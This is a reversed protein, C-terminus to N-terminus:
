DERPPPRRIYSFNDNSVGVMHHNSIEALEFGSDIPKRTTKITPKIYHSGISDPSYPFDENNTFFENSGNKRKIPSGIANKARYFEKALYESNLSSYSDGSSRYIDCEASSESGNSNGFNERKPSRTYTQPLRPLMEALETLNTGDRAEMRRIGHRQRERSALITESTVGLEKELQDISNVRYPNASKGSKRTKSSLDDHMNMNGYREVNDFKPASTAKTNKFEKLLYLYLDPNRNLLSRFQSPNERIIDRAFTNGLIDANYDIPVSKGTESSGVNHLDFENTKASQYYKQHKTLIEKSSLYSPNSTLEHSKHSKEHFNLLDSHNKGAKSLHIDEQRYTHRQPLRKDAHVSQLEINQIPHKHQTIHRLNQENIPRVEEFYTLHNAARNASQQFYEDDEDDSVSLTALPDTYFTGDIDEEKNDTESSHLRSPTMPLPRSVRNSRSPSAPVLYFNEDKSPRGLASSKQSQYLMPHEIQALKTHKPKALKKAQNISEYFTMQVYIEGASRGAYQLPYWNDYGDKSSKKFVPSIDIETDCILFSEKKTEDFVAVKLIPSTEDEIEYREEYNWNPRQGGRVVAKSRRDANGLRLCCFPNQKELKRRNPLNKAKIVVIILTGEPM